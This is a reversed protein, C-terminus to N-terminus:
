AAGSVTLMDCALVPNVWDNEFIGARALGNLGIWCVDNEESQTKSSSPGHACVATFKAYHGFIAENNDGNKSTGNPSTPPSPPTLMGPRPTITGSTSSDISRALDGYENEEFPEGTHLLTTPHRLELSSSLFTDPDFDGLSARSHSSQSVVGDEEWEEEQETVVPESSVIVRTDRSLIGQNVPELMLVKVQQPSGSRRPLYTTEDKRFIRPPQFAELAEGYSPGLDLDDVSLIISESLTESPMTPQLVILSLPLPDYM